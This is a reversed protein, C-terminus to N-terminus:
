SRNPSEKLWRRHRLQATAADIVIFAAAVAIIEGFELALESAFLTLPLLAEGLSDLGTLETGPRLRMRRKMASCGADALLSTLAFAATLGPPLSFLTGIGICALIGCILGRWTKHSGLFREGDPLVWGLDLPIGWRDRSLQAVIVPTGNAAILLALARIEDLLSDM